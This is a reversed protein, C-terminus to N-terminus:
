PVHVADSVSFDQGCSQVPLHMFLLWHGVLRQKLPCHAAQLAVMIRQAAPKTQWSPIQRTNCWDATIPGLPVAFVPGSATAIIAAPAAAPNAHIRLLRLHPFDLVIECGWRGM